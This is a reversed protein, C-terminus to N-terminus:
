EAVIEVGCLVTPLSSAATFTLELRDRVKVGHLEKVLTTRPGSAERLVEFSSLVRQGQASVHMVREGVQVDNPECFYLKVTYSVAPSDKPLNLGISLGELGEVGSAGIWSAENETIQSAHRRFWTLQKGELKVDVAPSPGGVSPYELWLTGDAAKRDGPAGLNIGLRKVHAKSATATFFTWMEAEPMPALALSTQNQYRCTCTRTYDPACIVGGAVILNNTCSSRFGGFNGTGGDHCLDFFGAAGSRFTLLHESAIPTNCGYNRSWNWPTQAGTIPDTRMVPAGTLLHCASTDKLITDGHLMAPGVYAKNYWMEKGTAARYARMGAPEDLLTDRAVRGAEVLVDHKDSYSLWTGFVGDGASWLTKGSALDFAWVRPQNASPLGRRLLKSVDFGSPRDIAYLRGGGICIANHRFGDRATATWLLKGSHRDLCVLHKSAAVSEIKSKSLAAATTIPDAGGILYDGTVNLYGWQPPEAEGAEQPLKFEALVKGSDPSLRLCTNKVAVYIGDSMSIFNTGSANAGPQHATNDFRKGVGPLSAEWLQLGTYIDIARLLNPGEIITRGDIVQPQPGHGHRPLIGEHAPGGFWLVGLPAKVIQDRSVRTNAADAHEHTWNAAGPLAGVRTVAVYNGSAAVGANALRLAEIQKVASAQQAADVPLLLVGGYPRLTEYVAGLSLPNLGIGAAALDETVVLSAMYQPLAFDALTGMDAAIREGYLGTRRHRERLATVKAPDPDIAVVRLKSQSLIEDALRGSGLGWVVCYGEALPAHQLVERARETWADAVSPLPQPPQKIFNAAGAGEGFCYIKGEETVAFLKDDAAILSRCNGAVSQQWVPASHKEDLPLEVASLHGDFGLYLRSGAKILATVEEDTELEGAKDITWKASTTIKGKRDLGKVLKVKSSTLDLARVEASTFTYIADNTLALPDGLDTLHRQGDVSFAAGGNFFLGQAAAVGYGGGKKGNEALKYLVLEGTRRDYVAPLSRGGPVFLHDGSVALPGQPAVGAFADAGHPQTTYRSGEGDNQWIVKGSEADLAYLFIGMFPWIGAAFYVTGDAVVPAGRAPWTSILRDNGLVRRESPAGCFRWRQKGSAADLAYLYGDDCAFFVIGNWVAPAFRVPGDAAFTWLERGSSTDYATVTDNRSSGVFMRGAAVVPEYTADNKLRAQDPWTPELAPLERVWHLRLDHPLEAPSAASHAADYHWM